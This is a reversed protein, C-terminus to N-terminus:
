SARWARREEAIKIVAAECERAYKVGDGLALEAERVNVVMAAFEKPELSAKHDPGDMNRDLTMHKEIVTAGLAVAVAPLATSLTHDSFGVRRHLGALAVIARLNVDEVQCPYSSTCHLLVADPVIGLAEKVDVIASMGTSLIIECATESAAHLLDRDRLHGSSIKITGVGLSVLFRLSEVDFPTSIFELGNREAHDKLEPYWERDLELRSLMDRREGPPELRDATFTQFKVADAGDAADILKHALDLSGNHNVGIEAIVYVM